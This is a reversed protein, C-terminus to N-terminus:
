FSGCVCPMGRWGGGGTGTPQAPGRQRGRGAPVAKGAAAEKGEKTGGQVTIMCWGPM